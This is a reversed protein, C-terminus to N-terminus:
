KFKILRQKKIKSFHEPTIRLYSAIIKQSVRQNIQPYSNELQEYRQIPTKTDLDIILNVLDITHEEAIIRGLRDGLKINEIAKNIFEVPILIMECNELCEVNLKANNNNYNSYATVIMNEIRFNYTQDKGEPTIIFDRVIGKTIFYIYNNQKNLEIILEGKKFEKETCVNKFENLEFENLSIYKKIFNLFLIFSKEM